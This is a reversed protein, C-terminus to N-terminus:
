CRRPEELTCILTTLGNQYTIEAIPHCPFAPGDALANGQM